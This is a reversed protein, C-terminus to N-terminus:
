TQDSDSFSDLEKRPSSIEITLTAGSDVSFGDSLIVEEGASLTVDGGSAVSASSVTISKPARIVQTGALSDGSVFREQPDDGSQPRVWLLSLALALILGAALPLWVRRSAPTPDRRGTRANILALRAAEIEDRCSQCVDVHERLQEDMVDTLWEPDVAQRALFESPPHQQLGHDTGLTRALLLYTARWERCEACSELHAQLEQRESDALWPSDFDPLRQIAQQHEM